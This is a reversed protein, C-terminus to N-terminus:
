GGGLDFSGEWREKKRGGKNTKGKGKLSKKDNPSTAFGAGGGWNSVELLASEGAKKDLRGGTFSEKRRSKHV